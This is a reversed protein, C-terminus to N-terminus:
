DTVRVRLPPIDNLLVDSNRLPTYLIVIRRETRSVLWNLFFYSHWKPSFEKPIFYPVDITFCHKFCTVVLSLMMLLRRLDSINTLVPRLLFLLVTREARAKVIGLSPVIRAIGEEPERGFM